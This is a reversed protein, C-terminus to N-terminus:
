GKPAPLGMQKARDEKHEPSVDKLAKVAEINAKKTEVNHDVVIRAGLLLGILPALAAIIKTVQAAVKNEQDKSWKFALAFIPICAGIVGGTLLVVQVITDASM